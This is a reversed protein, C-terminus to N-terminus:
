KIEMFDDELVLCNVKCSVATCADIGIYGDGYYISFDAGKSWQPKREFLSRAYSTHWHGFVITKDPLLGQRALEYPNGWMADNWEKQSANRWNPDFEFERDETYYAPLNDKNILPVWSHVFIHNQTEFYNVMENFFPKVKKLIKDYDIDGMFSNLQCATWLTGNTNDHRHPYGRECMKEFLMEHNGRILIKRPLKMLYNMVDEARYGRDFHDGCSILWHEPNEADFGADNLATIMEDYFGHVDSIVFLKPM